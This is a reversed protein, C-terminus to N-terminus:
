QPPDSLHARAAALARRADAVVGDLTLSDLEEDLDEDDEPEDELDDFLDEEDDDPDELLDDYLRAIDTGPEAALRDPQAPPSSPTREAHAGSSPAAGRSGTGYGARLAVTQCVVRSLNEFVEVDRLRFDAGAMVQQVLQRLLQLGAEGLEALERHDREDM